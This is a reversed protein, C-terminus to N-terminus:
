ATELLHTKQPYLVSTTALGCTGDMAGAEPPPVGDMARFPLFRPVLSKLFTVTELDGGEGGPDVKGRVRGELGLGGRCESSVEAM